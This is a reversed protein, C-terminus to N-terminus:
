HLVHNKDRVLWATFAIVLISLSVTGITVLSLFRDDELYPHVDYVYDFFDNVLLWSAGVYLIQTGWRYMFSYLLVEIAMGGHSFVLMWNAPVMGGDDIGYLFLVSVAWIGYKLNMVLSMMEWFRSTRGSLWIGLVITFFLSSTPSDPVFPLFYWPTSLLQEKYWIYGYITGLLNVWFLIWM